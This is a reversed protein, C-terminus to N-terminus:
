IVIIIITPQTCNKLARTITRWLIMLEREKKVKLTKSMTRTFECEKLHEQTEDVGTTCYRCQMNERYISTINGKVHTTIKSRFRFWTRSDPLNM